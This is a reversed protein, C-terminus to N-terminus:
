SAEQSQRQDGQSARASIVDPDVVDTLVAATSGSAVVKMTRPSGAVRTLLGATELSVIHAHVTGPSSMGLGDGIERVTPAYGQEAIFDAIFDLVDADRETTM